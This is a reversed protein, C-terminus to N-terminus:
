HFAAKRNGHKATIIEKPCRSSVSCLVSWCAWAYICLHKPSICGQEYRRELTEVTSSSHVHGQARAEDLLARFADIHEKQGRRSEAALEKICHDFLRRRQEATIASFRPQYVLRPLCKEYVAFPGFNEERLMQKFDEMRRALSKLAELEPNEEAASDDDSSSETDQEEEPQRQQANTSSTDGNGASTQNAKQQQQQLIQIGLAQQRIANNRQQERRQEGDDEDPMEFDDFADLAAAAKDLREVINKVEEPIMWTAQKTKKNFFYKHGTSTQVRCWDTQGLAEFSEPKGVDKVVNSAGTPSGTSPDAAEVTGQPSM